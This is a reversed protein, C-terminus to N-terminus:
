EEQPVIRSLSGKTPHFTLVYLFGDPGTEIDTISSPFRTSFTVETRERDNSAVLDDSLRSDGFKLGSRDENVEFFYLHGNNADAVFINNTYDDGLRDSNYFEIDTVGVARGWSFVPDAYSSSGLFNVLNNESTVNSREIPGMVTTWGSNFGPRVLNIEDFGDPGNETDWLIHTLPDIALGFSNRIGYAYYKSLNAYSEDSRSVDLFPNGQAPSGDPNIRLIVSTDDPLSGNKFNQLMGKRNLDGIVAYIHRNESDAILKGGNHNKGPLVPLDLILTGNSLSKDTPNWEFRYIRNGLVQTRDEKSAETLYFFAFTPTITTGNANSASNDRTTITKNNNSAATTATKDANSMNNALVAVGLLGRESQENVTFNLLSIKSKNENIFLIVEGSKESILMDGHNGIFAMSTPFDLGETVLEVELKSNNLIPVLTTNNSVQQSIEAEQETLSRQASPSSEQQQGRSM